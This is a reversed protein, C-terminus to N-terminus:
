KKFLRELNRAAVDLYQSGDSLTSFDPPRVPDRQVPRALEANLERIKRICLLSLATMAVIATIYAAVRLSFGGANLRNVVFLVLQLAIAVCMGLALFIYTRMRFLSRRELLVANHRLDVLREERVQRELELREAEARDEESAEASAFFEAGCDPCTVLGNATVTHGSIAHNCSPCHFASETTQPQDDAILDDGASPNDDNPPSEDDGSAWHAPLEQPDQGMDYRYCYLRRGAMATVFRTLAPSRVPSQRDESASSQEIGADTEAPPKLELLRPETLVPIDQPIRRTDDQVHEIADARDRWREVLGLRTLTGCEPCVGSENGTLDYRCTRCLPPDGPRQRREPLFAMGITLLLLPIWLLLAFQSGPISHWLVPAIGMAAAGAILVALLAVRAVPRRWGRTFAISCLALFLVVSSISLGCILVHQSLVWVKSPGRYATRPPANITAGRLRDNLFHLRVTWGDLSPHIASASLSTRFSVITTPETTPSPAQYPSFDEFISRVQGTAPAAAPMTSPQREITTTQGDFPRGGNLVVEVERRPLYMLVQLVSWINQSRAVHWGDASRHQQRRAELQTAILSLELFLLLVVIGAALLPRALLGAFIRRLRDM